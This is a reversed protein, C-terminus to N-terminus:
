DVFGEVGRKSGDSTLNSSEDDSKAIIYQGKVGSDENSSKEAVGEYAKYRYKVSGGAKLTGTLTMSGNELGNKYSGSIIQRTMGGSSVRDAYYNSTVSGSGNPSDESWEGEYISSGIASSESYVARIWIGKGERIDESFEGYYYYGDMYAAVGKGNRRGSEDREGYYYSTEKNVIEDTMEIFAEERVMEKVDDIDGAEFCSYLKELLDNHAEEIALREAEERAREEEEVRIREREININDIIIQMNPDGTAEYGRGLIELIGDEDQMGECITYIGWYPSKNGPDYLIAQEYSAVAQSSAGQDTAMQIYAHAIAQRLETSEPEIELAEDYCAIAETYEGDEMHKNGESIISGIRNADSNYRVAYYVGTWVAIMIGIGIIIELVKLITNNSM